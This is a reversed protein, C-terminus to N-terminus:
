DRGTSGGKGRQRVPQEQKVHADSDHACISPLVGVCAHIPGKQQVAFPSFKKLGNKHETSYDCTPSPDDNHVRYFHEM